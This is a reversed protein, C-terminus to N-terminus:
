SEGEMLGAEKCLEVLQHMGYFQRRNRQHISELAHETVQKAKEISQHEVAQVIEKMNEM